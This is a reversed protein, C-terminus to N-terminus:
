RHGEILTQKIRTNALQLGLLAVLMGSLMGLTMQAAKLVGITSLSVGNDVPWLGSALLMGMIMGLNCAIFVLGPQSGIGGSFFRECGALRMGLNCGILMGVHSLPALSVMQVGDRWGALDQSSCWTALLLLGAAGFDLSLGLMFGLHGLAASFALLAVARYAPRGALRSLGIGAGLGALAIVLLERGGLPQALAPWTSAAAAAVLLGLLWPSMSASDSPKLRM